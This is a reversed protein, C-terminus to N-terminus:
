SGIAQFGLEGVPARVRVVSGLVRRNSCRDTLAPDAGYGSEPSRWERLTSESRRAPPWARRPATLDSRACLRRRNWRLQMVTPPEHSGTGAGFNSASRADRLSTWIQAAVRPETRRTVGYPGGITDYLPEASMDINRTTLSALAFPPPASFRRLTERPVRIGRRSSSRSREISSETLEVLHRSSRYARGAHRRM